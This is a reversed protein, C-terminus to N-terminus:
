GTKEVRAVRPGLRQWLLESVEQALLERGAETPHVGDPGLVAELDAQVLVRHLDHVLVAFEQM